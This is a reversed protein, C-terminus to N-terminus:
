MTAELLPGCPPRTRRRRRPQVPGAPTGYVPHAARVPKGAPRCACVSILM